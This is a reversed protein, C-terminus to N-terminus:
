KPPSFSASITISLKIKLKADKLLQMVHSVHIVHEEFSKSHITIDDLYIEVYPLNGLISHMFLSFDAPLNKLGFPCRVFQYHGRGTSFATKPKSEESLKLQHFGSLLDLTSFYLSGAMRDFIETPRAIPWRQIKTVKNLPIFNICFRNKDAKEVMRVGFNYPSRSIEIIGYKLMNQVETEILELTHISQRYPPVYFPRHEETVIVHEYDPGNALDALSFASNALIKERLPFIKLLQEATLGVDIPISSADKKEEEFAWQKPTYVSNEDINAESKFHDFAFAREAQIELAIEMQLATDDYWMPHSDRPYAIKNQCPWIIAKTLSLWDQGLLTYKQDELVLFKIKVTKNGVTVDALETEGYAQLIDGGAVRIMIQSPEIKLRHALATQVSIISRTAGTDVCASTTKLNILCETNLGIPLEEASNIDIIEASNVSDVRGDMIAFNAQHPVKKKLYCADQKHGTKRCHYCVIDKNNKHGFTKFSTDKPRSDQFKSPSKYKGNNYPKKFQINKQVEPKRSYSFKKNQFQQPATPVDKGWKNRVTKAYNANAIRDHQGPQRNGGYDYEYKAMQMIEDLWAGYDIEKTEGKESRVVVMPKESRPNNLYKLIECEVKGQLGAVYLHFLEEKPVIDLVMPRLELFRKTFETFAPRELAV